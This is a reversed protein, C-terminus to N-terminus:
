RSHNENPMWNEFEKNSHHTPIKPNNTTIAVPIVQGDFPVIVITGIVTIETMTTEIMTIATVPPVIALCVIVSLAISGLVRPDRAM